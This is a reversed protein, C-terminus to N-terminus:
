YTFDFGTVPVAQEEESFSFQGYGPRTNTPATRNSLETEQSVAKNYAAASWGDMNCDSSDSHGSDTRTGPKVSSTLCHKSAIGTVGIVQSDHEPLEQCYQDSLFLSFKM